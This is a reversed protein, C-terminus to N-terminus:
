VQYIAMIIVTCYNQIINIDVEDMRLKQNPIRFNKHSYYYASDIIKSLEKGLIEM